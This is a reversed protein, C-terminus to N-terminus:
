YERLCSQLNKISEYKLGNKDFVIKAFGGLSIFGYLMDRVDVL